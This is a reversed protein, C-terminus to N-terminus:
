GQLVLMFSLFLLNRYWDKYQVIVGIIVGGSPATPISVARPCHPPATTQLWLPRSARHGGNCVSCRGKHPVTKSMMMMMMVMRIRIMMM